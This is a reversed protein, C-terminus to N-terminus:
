SSGHMLRSAGAVGKDVREFFETSPEASTVSRQITPERYVLRYANFDNFPTKAQECDIYKCISSYCELAM